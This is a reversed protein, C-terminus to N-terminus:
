PKPTNLEDRTLAGHKARILDRTLRYQDNMKSWIESEGTFLVKTCNVYDKEWKVIISNTFLTKTIEVEFIKIDFEEFYDLVQNVITRM